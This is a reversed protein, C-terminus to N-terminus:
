RRWERNRTARAPGSAGQALLNRIAVAVDNFVCFGAGADPGAHHSGGASNCAIGHELALWAALLTGASSLRARRAV